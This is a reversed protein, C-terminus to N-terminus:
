RWWKKPWRDGPKRREAIDLSDNDFPLAEEAIALDGTSSFKAAERLLADIQERERTKIFADIAERALVSRPKKVRKAEAALKRDLEEPLRLSLLRM